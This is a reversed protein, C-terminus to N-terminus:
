YYETIVIIGSGGNGGTTGATGPPGGGGGAGISYTFTASPSNFIAELGGGGGGGGGSANGVGANGTAGAGGGGSNPLSSAGTGSYGGTAGGGLLSSGGVGGPFNLNVLSGNTLGGGGGGPALIVAIVTSSTSCSATGGTGGFQVSTGINGAGGGTATCNGFATATGATGNNSGSGGGGGGGGGAVMKVNLWLATVPTTYTGTGSTIRQVTPMIVRWVPTGAGASRVANGSSGAGMNMVRTGDTYLMGGATVALTGNNTGGNAISVPSAPVSVWTMATTGGGQTALVQGATGVTTPLIFNYSGAAPAVTVSVTGSVVGGFGILGTTVANGLVPTATWIPDTTVGQGLFVANVIPSPFAYPDAGEAIPVYHATPLSYGTGGQAPQVVFNINSATTSTVAFSATGATSATSAFSATGSTAAFSATGATSSSTAFAATGSTAAFFATGSTSATSVLACTLNGNAGIANAWVGAACASPVSAFATAIGATGAAGAFSATGNFIGFFNTAYVSAWAATTAGLSVSNTVLPKITTNVKVNSLNSLDIAAGGSGPSVPGWVNSACINLLFSNNIDSRLDGNNCTTPLTSPQLRMVQGTIAQAFIRDLHLCLAALTCVIFKRTM